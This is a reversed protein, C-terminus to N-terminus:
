FRVEEFPSHPRGGSEAGGEVIRAMVCRTTTAPALVHRHSAVTRHRDYSRGAVSLVRMIEGPLDISRRGGGAAGDGPRPEGRPADHGLPCGIGSRHRWVAGVERVEGKSEQMSERNSCGFGVHCRHPGAQRRDECLKAQRRIPYFSGECPQVPSRSRPRAIVVLQNTRNPDTIMSHTPAEVQPPPSIQVPRPIIGEGYRVTQSAGFLGAKGPASSM